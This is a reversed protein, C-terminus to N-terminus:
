RRWEEEWRKSAETVTLPVPLGLSRLHALGAATPRVRWALDADLIGRDQEQVELWGHRRSTEVAAAVALRQGLLDLLDHDLPVPGGRRAVPDTGLWLLLAAQYTERTPSPEGPAEEDDAGLLALAEDPLTRLHLRHRPTVRAYVTCWKLLTQKAGPLPPGGEGDIIAPLQGMLSELMLRLAEDPVDSLDDEPLAAAPRADDPM